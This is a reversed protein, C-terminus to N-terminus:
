FITKIKKYSLYSIGIILLIILSIITYIIEPYMNNFGTLSTHKIWIGLYAWVFVLGYLPNKDKFMRLLGIITGVLLVIITWIVPSINFGNWNISVLFTVINAITAITVWGFYITFPAYVSIKEVTTFEQKNIIDAIKILLFLLTVILIMSIFIFNYHWAFIWLLNVISTLIFYISIKDITKENLKGKGFLNFQYLVYAGLLLYIIGWIVFTIGAPAFLNGYMNSIDGTTMGNIPLINALSNVLVMSIFTILVLIKIHESKM